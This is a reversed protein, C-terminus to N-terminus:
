VYSTLSSMLKVSTDCKEFTKHTILDCFHIPFIVFILGLHTSMVNSDSTLM